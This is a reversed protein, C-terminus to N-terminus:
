RFIWWYYIPRTKNENIVDFTHVTALVCIFIVFGSCRNIGKTENNNEMQKSDNIENYVTNLIITKPM